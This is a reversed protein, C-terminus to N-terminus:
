GPLWGVLVEEFSFDGMGIVCQNGDTFEVGTLALTALGTQSWEEQDQEGPEIVLTATGGTALYTMAVAVDGDAVDDCTLDSLNEGLNVNLTIDPDPLLYTHVQTDEAGNAASVVGNVRVYLQITDAANRAFLVMDSCGGQFALVSGFDQELAAVECVDVGSDTDGSDVGLKGLDCGLTCILFALIGRHM